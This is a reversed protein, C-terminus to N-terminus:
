YRHVTILRERTALTRKLRMSEPTIEARVACEGAAPKPAPKVPPPARWQPGAAAASPGKALSKGFLGAILTDANVPTKPEFPTPRTTFCRASRM